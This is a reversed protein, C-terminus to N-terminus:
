WELKRVKKFYGGHLRMHGNLAPINKFRRNCLNCAVPKSQTATAVEYCKLDKTGEDPTKSAQLWSLGKTVSSQEGQSVVFLKRFKIFVGYFSVAFQM